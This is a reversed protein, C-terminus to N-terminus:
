FIKEGSLPLFYQTKFAGLVLPIRKKKKKKEKGQGGGIELGRPSFNKVLFNKSFFIEFKKGVKFCFFQPVNKKKM